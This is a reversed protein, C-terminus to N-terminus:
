DDKSRVNQSPTNECSGTLRVEMAMPGVVRTHVALIWGHAHVKVNAHDFDLGVHPDFQLQPIGGPLFSEPAVRLWSSSRDLSERM